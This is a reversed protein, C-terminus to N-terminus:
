HCKHRWRSMYKRVKSMDPFCTGNLLCMSFQMLISWYITVIYSNSLTGGRDELGLTAARFKYMPHCGVAVLSQICICCTRVM